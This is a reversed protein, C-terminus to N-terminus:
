DVDCSKKFFSDHIGHEVEGLGRNETARGIKFIFFNHRVGREVRVRGCAAPDKAPLILSTLPPDGGLRVQTEAEAKQSFISARFREPGEHWSVADGGDHVQRRMEKRSQLIEHVVVLERVQLVEDRLDVRHLVAHGLTGLPEFRHAM